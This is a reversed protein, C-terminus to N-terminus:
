ARGCRRPRARGPPMPPACRSAMWWRGTSPRLMSVATVTAAVVRGLAAALPVIEAPLPRLDLAAAFRARAEAAEPLAELFQEQRAARRIRDLLDPPPTVM